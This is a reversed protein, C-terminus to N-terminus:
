VGRIPMPPAVIAFRMQGEDSEFRASAGAITRAGLALPVPRGVKSDLQIVDGPDLSALEGASLTAAGLQVSIACNVPELAEAMTGLVPVAGSSALRCRAGILAESGLALFVTWGGKGPRLQFNARGPMIGEAAAPTADPAFGAALDDLAAVAVEGLVMRDRPNAPDAKGACFALGLAAADDAECGLWADGAQRWAVAREALSAVRTLRLAGADPQWAEIWQGAISRVLAEEDAKTVASSPLWAKALQKM